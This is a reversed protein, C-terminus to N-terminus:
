LSGLCPERWSVQGAGQTGLVPQQPQPTVAGQGNETLGLAEARSRRPHRFWVRRRFFEGAKLAQEHAEVGGGYQM